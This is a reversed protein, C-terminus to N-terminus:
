LDISTQHVQNGQIFSSLSSPAVRGETDLSFETCEATQFIEAWFEQWYGIGAEQGFKTQDTYNCIATM